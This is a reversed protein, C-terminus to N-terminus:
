RIVSRFSKNLEKKRIRVRKPTIEVWEDDDIWTLAFDLTMEVQPPLIINEDKGHTRVNTLHKEKTCNVNADNKKTHEGIVMGQYVDDGPSVFQRGLDLLNYLAYPTAKGSRDAVIAGNQRVLMEGLHPHYGDFYTSMIGEGKTDTLFIGRYGIIGRAPIRFEVRVRGSGLTQMTKLHGKRSSLKETVTGTYKEPIDLVLIEFPELIDGNELTQFLVEPRGVMLEYGERRIEEFVIALQLEGRAKLKFVKPDITSEYQLAVNHKCVNSLFEELKRSTLYEGDRGSFPSTSVSVFVSVTPPAVTIRDLPERKQLDCVTDGIRPLTSGAVIVIEGADARDIEKTKLSDFIQISSVRFVDEIGNERCLVYQKQKEISGRQIRGILQAGLYSSHTLSAVLLQLGDGLSILPENFVDSALLDLIDKMNEKKVLLDTTAWGEKSSAYVVPINLDFDDKGLFTAMDLLLEETEKKVEEIRQDPRDIKNIIVAIKLNREMAKQLVFRTQPLPGESADVLLLVGDVMFLSREVEGGFDSHGPTDLINIKTNNWNIACNKARITIGREREIDGSDMVREVTGARENLAGSQKLLEDLLTTKGHDVHAVIAVNKLKTFSM